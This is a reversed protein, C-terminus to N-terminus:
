VDLCFVINEKLNNLDSYKILGDRQLRGVVIGPAIGQNNAFNLVSKKSFSNNKCFEEYSKRDILTNAAWEDASKEEEESTGNPHGLHGLVIHAIEHFLSFWFKDADKGRTTMGIVIKNNDYFSAGQLFSGKLHPIFVLAIGLKAFQNRMESCFLKPDIKTMKRINPVFDILGKINIPDTMIERAKIKAMQAWAMLALDSKDTIALRRCAIQSIQKRSILSLESVEFFKRLNIVKDKLNKSTPVWGLKVIENYPSNKVIRIDSDFSNEENVKSLTERYLSEYNLWFSAPIGLVMELRSAISSTLPIDGRLLDEIINEPMDMSVAFDNKSMGRSELQESLTEGPPVAIYTRSKIM